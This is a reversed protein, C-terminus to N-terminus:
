TSVDTGAIYRRTNAGCSSTCPRVSSCRIAGVVYSGVSQRRAALPERPAFDPPCLFNNLWVCPVAPPTSATFDSRDGQRHQLPSEALYDFLILHTTRLFCISYIMPCSLTLLYHVHISLLVRKRHGRSLGVYCVKASRCSFYHTRHAALLYFSLWAKGPALM